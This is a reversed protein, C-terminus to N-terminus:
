GGEGVGRGVPGRGGTMRSCSRPIQGCIAATRRKPRSRGVSRRKRAKWRRSGAAPRNSSERPPSSLNQGRRTRRVQYWCRPRCEFEGRGLRPAIALNERHAIRCGIKAAGRRCALGGFCNRRVEQVRWTPRVQHRSRCGSEPTPPPPCTGFLVAEKKQPLFGDVCTAAKELRIEKKCLGKQLFM